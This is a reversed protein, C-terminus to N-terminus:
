RPWYAVSRDPIGLLQADKRLAQHAVQALLWGTIVYAIGVRFVNRHRLEEIFARM